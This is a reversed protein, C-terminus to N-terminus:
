KIILGKIFDLIRRASEIAQKAETKDYLKYPPIDTLDAYRTPAYYKDLIELEPRIGQFQHHNLKECEKVLILLRHEKILKGKQFILYGKLAKEAVQQTLFCTTAYFEEELNSEAAKLDYDAQSIWNLATKQDSSLKAM